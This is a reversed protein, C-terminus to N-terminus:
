VLEFGDDDDAEEGDEWLVEWEDEGFVETTELDKQDLNKEDLDEHSKDRLVVAIENSAGRWSYRDFYGKDQREVHSYGGSDSNPSTEVKDGQPKNGISERSSTLTPEVPCPDMGARSALLKLSKLAETLEIEAHELSRRAEVIPQVSPM